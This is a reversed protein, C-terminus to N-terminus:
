MFRSFIRLFVVGITPLLILCLPDRLSPGSVIDRLSELEAAHLPFRKRTEIFNTSVLHQAVTKHTQTSQQQQQQQQQRQQSVSVPFDTETRLTTKAETKRDKERRKREKGTRPIRALGLYFKKGEEEEKEREGCFFHTPFSFLFIPFPPNPWWM